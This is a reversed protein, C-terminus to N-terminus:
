GFSISKTPICMSLPSGPVLGRTQALKRDLDLTLPFPGSPLKLEVTTRIHGTKQILHMATVKGSLLHECEKGFQPFFRIGQPNLCATGRPRDHTLPWPICLDAGMTQIRGQTIVIQTDSCDYLWNLDHSAIVLTTGFRKRADLAARRIRRASASDVSAVPEDLLLVEPELILRAALAVRQAEGGSLEHWQRHAFRDHDLGVTNLSEKIRAKLKQTDKRIKLGYALNDFVSRKLLYPHQTLLTVQSRVSKSFPLQPRGQYCITGRSPKMAFALLKLLTSKGSGNPGTLGTISGSELTLKPIDLVQKEGYFHAINELHYATM